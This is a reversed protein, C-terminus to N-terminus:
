DISPLYRPVGVLLREHAQGEGRALRREGLDARWKPVTVHAKVVVESGRHAIPITGYGSASDGPEFQRIHWHKARPSEDTSVKTHRLGHTRAWQEAAAKTFHTKAFLFSQARSGMKRVKEATPLGELYEFGKGHPESRDANGCTCAWSEQGCASCWEPGTPQTRRRASTSRRPSEDGPRLDDIYEVISPERRETLRESRPDGCYEHMAEATGCGCAEHHEEPPPEVTGGCGCAEDYREDGGGYADSADHPVGRGHSGEHKAEKRRVEKAFAHHAVQEVYAVDRIRSVDFPAWVSVGIEGRAGQVRIERDNVDPQFRFWGDSVRVPGNWDNSVYPGSEYHGARHQPTHAHSM